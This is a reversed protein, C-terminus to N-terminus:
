DINEKRWLYLIGGKVQSRLGKRIHGQREKHRCARGWVADEQSRFNQLDASEVHLVARCKWCSEWEVWLDQRRTPIGRRKWAEARANGRGHWRKIKASSQPQRRYHAAVCRIREGDHVCLHSDKCNSDTEEAIDWSWLETKRLTRMDEVYLNMSPVRYERQSNFSYFFFNFVTIVLTVKRKKNVLTDPVKNSLM